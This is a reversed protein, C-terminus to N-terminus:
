LRDRNWSTLKCKPMTVYVLSRRIESDYNQVELVLLSVYSRIKCICVKCYQLVFETFKFHNGSAVLKSGTSLRVEYKL